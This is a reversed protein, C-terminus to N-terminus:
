GLTYVHFFPVDVLFILIGSGCFIIVGLIIIVSYGIGSPTPTWAFMNNILLIDM